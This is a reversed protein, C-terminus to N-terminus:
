KKSLNCLIQDWSGIISTRLMSLFNHIRKALRLGVINKMLTIKWNFVPPPLMGGLKRAIDDAKEWLDHYEPYYNLRSDQLYKLCADRTRKSDELSRLYGICLSQSLWLSDLAKKSLNRSLSFRNSKRYYSRAEPVFRIKESAMIVRTFYEGDDDYSIREDWPGALETLKRSVLWADGSMWVNERFKTILWEVPDADRWLNTPKFEANETRYYFSAWSSSLLIKPNKVSNVERMQKEIKDLALLDDADLWQIYDGQAYELGRNRAAAAGKNEQSVVKVSRSEFEQAIQLSHDTSGDDVIIVEKHAWTQSLASEITESLWKEANYSPIIISVLMGMQMDDL